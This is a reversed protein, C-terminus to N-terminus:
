GDMRGFVRGSRRLVGAGRPEKLSILGLTRPRRGARWWPTAVAADAATRRGHDPVAGRRAIESGSAVRGEDLLRRWHVARSRATAPDTHRM